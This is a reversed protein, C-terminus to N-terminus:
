AQFSQRNLVESLKKTLQETYRARILEFLKVTSEPDGVSRTSGKTNYM